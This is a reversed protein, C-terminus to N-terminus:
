RSAHGHLAIMAALAADKQDKGWPPGVSKGLAAIKKLLSSPTTALATEAHELLLKEPIAVLKVNCAKAAQALVERFLVGEAKHMRFHVALIEAVSWNPMPEGVLLGCGRIEFGVERTRKAAARVERLAMRKAAAIGLKVLKEAEDSGLGEASHYPQKAWEEAVLELRCRELVHLGGGQRGLVVLAAWGSHARLGFAAEALETRRHTNPKM